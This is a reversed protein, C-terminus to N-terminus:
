RDQIHVVRVGGDRDPVVVYDGYDGLPPTSGGGGGQPEQVDFEITCEMLEQNGDDVQVAQWQSLSGTHHIDTLATCAAFADAEIATLSQPLTINPLASCGAFARTGISTVGDPISVETVAGCGAFANDGISTIGSQLEVSKIEDKRAAWPAPNEENHDEMAGTGGITLKGSEADLQWTLGNECTGYYPPVEEQKKVSIENEQQVGYLKPMLITASVVAAILVAAVPFVVWAKKKKKPAAPAAGDAASAPNPQQVIQQLQELCTDCVKGTEITQGCKRCYPM